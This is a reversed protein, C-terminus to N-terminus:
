VITAPSTIAWANGASDEFSTTGTSQTTFDPNWLVTGSADTVTVNYVRLAQPSVGVEMNAMVTQQSIGSTLGTLTGLSMYTTGDTSYGLTVTGAAYVTGDTDTFSTTGTNNVVKVYIDEGILSTPIGTSAWTDGYDRSTDRWECGLCAAYGSLSGFLVSFQSSLQSAGTLAYNGVVLANSMVASEINLHAIAKFVSGDLGTVPTTTSAGGSTSTNSLYHLTAVASVVVSLDEPNTLSGNNRASISVTAAGSPTYTATEATASGAAFTVTAPSFTGGAGGDSLTVITATTPGNNNPTLTLTQAIGVTGTAAGTLTFATSPVAEASVTLTVSAPDTLSGSNTTSITATGSASPTFTCTVAATSGAPISVTAPSFVGALTSAPTVTIASTNATGTGPTITLTVPNGMVVSSASLASTYTTFPVATASATLSISTANTLTGSNTFSMVGTGAATPTFTFTASATSGASITITTPSFTGVLTSAPTIIVDSALAAGTGPAVTYTSAEGVTLTTTGSVTYTTFQLAAVTITTTLATSTSLGGGGFPVVAYVYATGPTGTTDIYGTAEGGSMGITALVSASTGRQIACGGISTSGVDVPNTWALSVTGNTSTSTLVTVAAPATFTGPVSVIDDASWILSGMSQSALTVPVSQGTIGDKVTVIRTLSSPNWMFVVISGDPNEFAVNMVDSTAVPTGGLVDSSSTIDFTNTDIRRAGPKVYRGVHALIYYDPNFTVAQTTSNITVVGRNTWKEAPNGFIPAGHENLFIQWLWVGSAGYRVMINLLDGAFKEAVFSNSDSLGSIWETFFLRVNDNRYGLIEAPTQHVNGNYGHYGAALRYKQSNADSLETYIFSTMSGWSTDGCIYEMDTYGAAYLAPGLYTGVFAAGVDAPLSQLRAGYALLSKLACLKRRRTAEAG